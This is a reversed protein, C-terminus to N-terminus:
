DRSLAAREGGRPPVPLSFENVYARSSSSSSFPLFSSGFPFLPRSPAPDLFKHRRVAPPRLLSCASSQSIRSLSLSSPRLLWLAFVQLSVSARLNSEQGCSCNTEAPFLLTPSYTMHMHLITAIKKFNRFGRKVQEWAHSKRRGGGGGGGRKGRKQIERAM